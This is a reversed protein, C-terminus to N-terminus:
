GLLEDVRNRLIRYRSNWGRYPQGKGELPPYPVVGGEFQDATLDVERGDPLINWFHKTGDGYDYVLISGGYYDQVILATVWCQGFPSGNGADKRAPPYATDKGWSMQLVQRFEELSVEM